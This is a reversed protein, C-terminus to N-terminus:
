SSVRNSVYTKCPSTQMKLSMSEGRDTTAALSQERSTDSNAGIILVNVPTSNGGKDFINERRRNGRGRNEEIYIHLTFVIVGGPM